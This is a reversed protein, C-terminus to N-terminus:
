SCHRGFKIRLSEIAARACEGPEECAEHAIARLVYEFLRDEESHAAESDGKAAYARVREVSTRVDDPTM